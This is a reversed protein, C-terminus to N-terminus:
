NSKYLYNYASIAALAGQGCAIVIQKGALDTVDGAAFVGKVSTELNVPNVEIEAKKNLDLFGALFATNPIAGIEIFCGDVSIKDLKNNKLDYYVIKELENEGEFSKIEASTIIKIKKNKRLQEVFIKDACLEGMAELLFVKSCFRGLEIAGEAGANGGGVVAVVKDKFAAEDCTVCYSIGKGLYKEENEANLKKPISGTAIILSKAEYINEDTIVKFGKEIKEVKEISEFSKIELDFMDLHEKFKKILELGSVKKFGPYNEVWVSNGIQGTFDKTILLADIYKRAAYIGATTGAAGGGIVILDKM